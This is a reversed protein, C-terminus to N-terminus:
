IKKEKTNHFITFSVNIEITSNMLSDGDIDYLPDVNAVEILSVLPPDLPSSPAQVNM